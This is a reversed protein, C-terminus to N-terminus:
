SGTVPNRGLVPLLDAGKNGTGVFADFGSVHQCQRTFFAALGPLFPLLINISTVFEVGKKVHRATRQTSSISAAAGYSGRTYQLVGLITCYRPVPDLVIDIWSLLRDM